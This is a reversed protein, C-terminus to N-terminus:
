TNKQFETLLGKTTLYYIIGVVVVVLPGQVLQFIKSKKALVNSWLILIALSILGILTPGM